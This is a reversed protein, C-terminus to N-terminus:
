NFYHVAATIAVALAIIETILFTAGLPLKCYKRKAVILIAAFLVAAVALGIHLTHLPAENVQHLPTSKTTTVLFYYAHVTRQLSSVVWLVGAFEATMITIYAAQRLRLLVRSPRRTTPTSEETRVSTERLNPDPVSAAV